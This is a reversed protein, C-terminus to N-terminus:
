KNDVRKLCPDLTTKKSWLFAHQIIWRYVYRYFVLCISECRIDKGKISLIFISLIFPIWKYAWTRNLPIFIFYLNAKPSIASHNIAGTKFVPITRFLSSDLTRIGREGRERRILKNIKKTEISDKKKRYFSLFFSFFNKNLYSGSM